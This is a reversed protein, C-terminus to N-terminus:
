GPFPLPESSSDNMQGKSSVSFGGKVKSSEGRKLVLCPLLVRLDRIELSFYLGSKVRILEPRM